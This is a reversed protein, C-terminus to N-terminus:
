EHVKIGKTIFKGWFADYAHISDTEQGQANYIIQGQNHWEFLGGYLNYVKDYGAEQLKEGIQESRVGISCYVVLIDNPQFADKVAKLDYGVYIANQIRSVEYEAPKRADLLKVEKNKALLETLETVKIYGVTNSNYKKIAEDITKQSSLNYAFLLFLFLTYKKIM